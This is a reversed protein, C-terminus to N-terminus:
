QKISISSITVSALVKSTTASQVPLHVYKKLPQVKISFFFYVAASFQATTRCGRSVGLNTM